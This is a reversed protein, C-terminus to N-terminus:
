EAGGKMAALLTKTASCAIHNRFLYDSIDDMLHRLSFTIRRLTVRVITESQNAYIWEGTPIYRRTAYYGMLEQLKKVDCIAILTKSENRAKRMAKFKLCKIFFAQDSNDLTEFSVMAPM